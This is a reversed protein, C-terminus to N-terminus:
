NDEDEDVSDLKKKSDPEELQPSPEVDAEAAPAEEPQMLYKNMATPLPEVPTDYCRTLLLSAYAMTLNYTRITTGDKLGIVAYRKDEKPQTVGVVLNYSVLTDHVGDLGIRFGDGLCKVVDDVDHQDIERKCVKCIM